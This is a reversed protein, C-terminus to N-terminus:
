DPRSSRSSAIGGSEVITLLRDVPVNQLVDVGGGIWRIEVRDVRDHPGLGFHLRSGFHSQYGRGGHVEDIQVLNGAVVCVRAGVGDRNTKVGQLRIQLWHNQCGHEQLLNKLLTPPQRSNLVVVDLDGDNDLDDVALGRSSALIRVGDGCRDSVNVFKAEGTEALLSKLVIKPARYVTNLDRDDLHGCAVILDRDGDNDLDAWSCGWTVNAQTGNGANSVRTVDQFFVDQFFHGGLNRYLTASEFQFATVYLDLWGDNDFDGCDTGMSGQPLGAGDFAVGAPIGAEAFKGTGDNLFLFNAMADNAVYVDTAGDNNFDGCVVGMGTGRKAAIGSSVSVDEWPGDGPNRFLVSTEEPYDLPGPYIGRGMNVPAHHTAPDFRVYNAAFLDLNGDADVDLFCAGAGVRSGRGVGAARTVDTFTGDGNNRLLVNPGFNSLYVDPHGDNDYDGVAVGLGFATCGVGARDTVEDFRLGGRNKYLAHGPPVKVETGPLPAGNPFYVDILGDGDYDLLALGCSVTEVLYHRGSSGDTHVFHIGSRGTWDVLEFPEGAKDHPSSPAALSAPRNGAADGPGASSGETRRPAKDRGCGSALGVALALLAAVAGARRTTRARPITRTAGAPSPAESPRDHTSSATPSKLPHGDALM